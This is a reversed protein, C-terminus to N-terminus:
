HKDFHQRSPANYNQECREALIEFASVKAVLVDCADPRASPQRYSSTPTGAEPFAKWGFANILRIPGTDKKIMGNKGSDSLKVKPKQSRSHTANRNVCSKM